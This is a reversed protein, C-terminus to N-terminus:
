YEDSFMVTLVRRTRAPDAPRESGYTYAPDYLDIKWFLKEGGIGFAGFDREGHPDNDEGFASFGQVAQLASQVFGPGRAEVGATLMIRGPVAPDQGLSGRFRDNQAAIAATAQGTTETQDTM